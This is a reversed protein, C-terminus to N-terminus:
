RTLSACYANGGTFAFGAALATTGTAACLTFKANMTKRDTSVTYNSPKLLAAAIDTRNGGADFYWFGPLGSKTTPFLATGAYAYLSVTFPTTAGTCDDAVDVEDVHVYIIPGTSTANWASYNGKTIAQAINVCAVDNEVAGCRMDTYCTGGYGCTDPQPNSTSCAVGADLM